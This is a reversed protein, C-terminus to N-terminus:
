IFARVLLLIFPATFIISDFRDLIGGHGPLIKGSDKVGAWRKFASEVLDGVQALVTFVFALGLAAVYNMGFALYMYISCVLMACLTGGVAGEWTKNPSIHPALHRKGFRKGVFYAATDTVWVNLFALLILLWSHYGLRLAALAGFGIGVYAAGLAQQLGFFLKDGMSRDLVAFLIAVLLLAVYFPWAAWGVVALALTIVVAAALTLPLIVQWGKGAFMRAVEYAGLGSLLAMVLVLPWSGFYSLALLVPVGIVATIVRTKM